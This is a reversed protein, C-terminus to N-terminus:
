TAAAIGSPRSRHIPASPPRTSSCSSGGPLRSSLGAAPHPRQSAANRAGCAADDPLCLARRRRRRDRGRLPHLPLRSLPPQRRSRRGKAVGTRVRCAVMPRDRRRSRPHHQQRLYHRVADQNSLRWCLPPRRRGPPLQRLQWDAGPECRARRAGSRVIASRSARGVRHRPSARHRSPAWAGCSHYRAGRRRVELLPSADSRALFDVGSM